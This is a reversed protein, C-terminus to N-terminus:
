VSREYIWRSNYEVTRAVFCSGPAHLAAVSFHAPSHLVTLHWHVVACALAALPARRCQCPAPRGPKVPARCGQLSVSNIGWECVLGLKFGSACQCAVNLGGTTTSESDTQFDIFIGTCARSLWAIGAATVTLSLEPEFETM